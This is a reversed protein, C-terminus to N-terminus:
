ISFSIEIKIKKKIMTELSFSDFNQAYQSTLTANSLLLANCGVAEHGHTIGFIFLKYVLYCFAFIEYLKQPTLIDKIKASFFPRLRIVINLLLELYRARICNLLLVFDFAM